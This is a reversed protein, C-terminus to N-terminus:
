RGSNPSTGSTRPNYTTAPKEPIPKLIEGAM